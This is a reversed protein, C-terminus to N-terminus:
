AARQWYGKWQKSVGRAMAAGVVMVYQEGNSKRRHDERWAMEGAYAALYPGAIRHHTGIEARRLRSFFSEAQNTCAEANRYEVSHNVRKTPFRAHLANWATSEDAHITSGPTVRKIITPVSEDESRFVFPLTKGKRERMVVVVRRKGTQNEALRRDIRDEKRNEPKIHIMRSVLINNLKQMWASHMSSGLRVGKPDTIKGL